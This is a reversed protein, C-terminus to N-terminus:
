ILSSDIKYKIQGITESLASDWNNHINDSALNKSKQKHDKALIIAAQLNELLADKELSSSIINKSYGELTTKNKYTNTLVASGVAALDLPPYSPCPALMLSITLDVTPIFNVYDAWSLKGLSKPVTNDNFTCLSVNEGAFFVDWKKTDIIGLDIATNLLDLGIYFLNRPTNPRAYFFLNLKEPDRKQVKKLFANKEKAHPFAPEFFLAEKTVHDYHNQVFYDYLIKTNVVPVMSTDSLIRDIMAHEDGNPYFIKEYEQLMCIYKKRRNIKKAVIAAWWITSIFIDNKSVLLKETLELESSLYPFNKVEYQAPLKISNIKSVAVLIAASSNENRTIIRLPCDLANSLTMAFVLATSVGGYLCSDTLAELLLNVRLVDEQDVLVGFSQINQFKDYLFADVSNSSPAVVVQHVKKPAPMRAKIFRAGKRLFDVINNSNKYASVSCRLIKKLNKM